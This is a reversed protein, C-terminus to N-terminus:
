DEFYPEGTSWYFDYKNRMGQLYPDIDVALSLAHLLDIGHVDISSVDLGEFEITCGASGDDFAFSATAKEVLYPASIRVVFRRRDHQDKLSYFLERQAIFNRSNM